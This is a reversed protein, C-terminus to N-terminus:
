PVDPKMTTHEPPGIDRGYKRVPVFPIFTFLRGDRQLEGFQESTSDVLVGHDQVEVVRHSVRKTGWTVVDGAKFKKALKKQIARRSM